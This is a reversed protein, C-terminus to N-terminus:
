PCSGPVTGSVPTGANGDAKQPTYTFTASTYGLSLNEITDDSLISGGSHVSKVTVGLLNLKVFEIPKEGNKRVTLQGTPIVTNLTASAVLPASALDVRKTISLPSGCAPVGAKKADGAIQGNVSWSWSLVDIEGAHKEDASEGQIDGLRLFTDNTAGSSTAGLTAAAAIVGVLLHHGVRSTSGNRSDNM